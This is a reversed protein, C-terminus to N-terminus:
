FGHQGSHIVVVTLFCGFAFIFYCGARSGAEGGALVAPEEKIQVSHVLPPSGGAVGKCWMWDPSGQQKQM